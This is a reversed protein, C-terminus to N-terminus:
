GLVKIFERLEGTEALFKFERLSEGQSPIRRGHAICALFSSSAHNNSKAWLELKLSWCLSEAERM